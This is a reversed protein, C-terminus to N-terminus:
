LLCYFSVTISASTYNTGYFVFKTTTSSVGASAVSLSDKFDTVPAELVSDGEEVGFPYLDEPTICHVVFPQLAMSMVLSLFCGIFAM